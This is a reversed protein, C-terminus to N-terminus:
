CEKQRIVDRLRAAEEYTESDVEINPTADNHIMNAKGFSSIGRKVRFNDNRDSDLPLPGRQTKM